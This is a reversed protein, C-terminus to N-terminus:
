MQDLISPRFNVVRRKVRERDNEDVRWEFKDLYSKAKDWGFKFALSYWYYAEVYNQPTGPLVGDRYYRGINAFAINNGYQAAKLYWGLAKAHNKGTGFGKALLYGITNMAGAHGPRCGNFVLAASTSLKSSGM